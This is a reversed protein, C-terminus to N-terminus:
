RLSAYAVWPWGVGVGLMVASSDIEVKIFTNNNTTTNNGLANDAKMLQMGKRHVHLVFDQIVPWIATFWDLVDHSWLVQWSAAFASTGTSKGLCLLMAAVEFGM